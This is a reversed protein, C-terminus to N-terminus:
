EGGLHSGRNCRSHLCVITWVFVCYLTRTFWTNAFGTDTKM